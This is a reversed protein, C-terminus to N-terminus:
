KMLRVLTFRRRSPRHASAGSEGAFYAAMRLADIAQFCGSCCTRLAHALKRCDPNTHKREKKNKRAFVAFPTQRLRRCYARRGDLRLNRYLRSAPPTCVVGSVARTAGRRHSADAESGRMGDLPWHTPGSSHSSVSSGGAAQSVNPALTLKERTLEKILEKTENINLGLM